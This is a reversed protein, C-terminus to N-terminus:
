KVAIKAVHNNVRVVYIGAGPAVTLIDSGAIYRGICQGALNWIEVESGNELGRLTIEGNSSGINLDSGCVASLGTPTDKPQFNVYFSLTEGAATLTVKYKRNDLAQDPYLVENDFQWTISGGAPISSNVTLSPFCTSGKQCIQLSGWGDPDAMAMELSPHDTYEVSITTPTEVDRKNVLDIEAVYQYGGGMYEKDGTDPDVWWENDHYTNVNMVAGEEIATGEISATVYDTFAASSTLAIVAAAALLLTKKM